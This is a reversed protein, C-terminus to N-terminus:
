TTLESAFRSVEGHRCPTNETCRKTCCDGGHHDCNEKGCVLLGECDTDRGCDGEGSQCLRSSSRAALCCDAGTLAFDTVLCGTSKWNLAM